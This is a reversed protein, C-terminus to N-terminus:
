YSLQRINCTRILRSRTSQCRLTRRWEGASTHWIPGQLLQLDFLKLLLLLYAKVSPLMSQVELLTVYRTQLEM